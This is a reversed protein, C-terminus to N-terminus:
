KVGDRLSYPSFHSPFFIGYANQGFVYSKGHRFFSSHNTVHYVFSAFCLACGERRRNMANEYKAWIKYLTELRTQAKFTRLKDTKTFVAIILSVIFEKM